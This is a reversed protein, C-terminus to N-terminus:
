LHGFFHLSRIEVHIEYGGVYAPRRSGNGIFLVRSLAAMRCRLVLIKVNGFLWIKESRARRNTAFLMVGVDFINSFQISVRHLFTM